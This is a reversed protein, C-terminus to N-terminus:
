RWECMTMIDGMIIKDSKDAKQKTTWNLLQLDFEIKFKFPLAFCM